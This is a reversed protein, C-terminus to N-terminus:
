QMQKFLDLELQIEGREFEKIKKGINMEHVRLKALEIYEPNQSLAHELKRRKISTDAKERILERRRTVTGHFHKYLIYYCELKYEQLEKSESRISFIWGYILEEPLCVFRRPQTDGPLLITHKCLRARLIEDERVNKYQQIYDVNIADCVPKIAIWYTGDVSLYVINKGKFELFKVIQKNM